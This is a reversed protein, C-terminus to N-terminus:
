LINHIIRSIPISRDVVIIHQTRIRDRSHRMELYAYPICLLPHLQEDNNTSILLCMRVSNINKTQKPTETKTEKNEFPRATEM